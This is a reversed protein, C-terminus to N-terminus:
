IQKKIFNILKKCNSIYELNQKAWEYGNLGIAKSKEKNNLLYDIAKTLSKPNNPEAFVLEKMDEFYYALDGVETAVVPKKTAFYEGIKTPFGADAWVSERRPNVLISCDAFEKEIEEKSLFGAFRIGFKVDTTERIIIQVDSSIAGIILLEIKPYKKILIEFAKILDLIGNDVSPTGCFGIVYKTNKNNSNYSINFDIFHPILILNEKKVKSDICLQYLFKSLVIIGDFYKNIYKVQINYFFIRPKKWWVPAITEKKAFDDLIRYCKLRLIKSCLIFLSLYYAYNFGYLLIIQNKKNFKRYALSFPIFCILSIVEIAKLFENSFPKNFLFNSRKIPTNNKKLYRDGKFRIVEVQVNNKSLGLAIQRVFSEAAGGYPFDGTTFIAINM